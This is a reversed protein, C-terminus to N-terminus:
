KGEPREPGRKEPDTARQPSIAWTMRWRGNQARGEVSEAADTITKTVM